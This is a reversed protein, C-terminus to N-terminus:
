PPYGAYCCLVCTLGAFRGYVEKLHHSSLTVPILLQLNLCSVTFSISLSSGDCVPSSWALVEFGALTGLGTNYWAGAEPLGALRAQSAVREWLADKFNKGLKIQMPAYRQQLAAILGAIDPKCPSFGSQSVYYSGNAVRISAGRVTIHQAPYAGLLVQTM